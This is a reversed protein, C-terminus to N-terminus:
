GPSNNSVKNSLKDWSQGNPAGEPQSRHLISVGWWKTRAEKSESVVPNEWSMKHERQQLGPDAMEGLLGPEKKNSLSM